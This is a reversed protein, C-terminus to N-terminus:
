DSLGAKKINEVAINHRGKNIEITTLKGGTKSLAWAIWISSHGTSTGIELASKYNNKIILDYLVKGDQYPVNLDHWHYRNQDLFEKVKRDIESQKNVAQQAYINVPFMMILSFLIKYGLNNVIKGNM